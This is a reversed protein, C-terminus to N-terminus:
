GHEKEPVYLGERLAAPFIIDTYFRHRLHGNIYHSDLCVRHAPRGEDVLIFRSEVLLIKIYSFDFRIFGGCCFYCGM